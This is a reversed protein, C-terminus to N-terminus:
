LVGMRQEMFVRISSSLSEPNDVDWELNKIFYSVADLVSGPEFDEDELLRWQETNSQLKLIILELASSIVEILLQHNDDRLHAYNIHKTNINIQVKEVFKDHSPDSWDCTVNWLPASKTAAYDYIPFFSGTGDLEIMYKDDLEGLITGPVNALHAEDDSASGFKSLYLILQFNLLGRFQGNESEFEINAEIEKDNQSFEIITKVGRQKSDSSFWILAIGLKSDSTAIGEPGFLSKCNEIKCTRTFCINNREKNWTKLQSDILEHLKDSGRILESDLDYISNNVKYYFKYKTFTIKINNKLSDTLIPFLSINNKM